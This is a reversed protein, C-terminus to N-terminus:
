RSPSRTGPAMSRNLWSLWVLLLFTAAAVAPKADVVIWGFSVATLVVVVLRGASPGIM